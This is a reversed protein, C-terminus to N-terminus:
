ASLIDEPSGKVLRVIDKIIEYVTLGIILVFIGKMANNVALIIVDIDVPTEQSIVMGAPAEAVREITLLGILIAITFVKLCYGAVRSFLTVGRRGILYVALVASLGLQVTMYPIYSRFGESLKPFIFVMEGRNVFSSFRAVYFNLLIIIIVSFIITTIQEGLSVGQTKKVVVLEKPTWEEMEKVIKPGANVKDIIVFVLVVFGFASAVGTIGSEIINAIVEWVAAEQGQSMVASLILSGTVAAGV